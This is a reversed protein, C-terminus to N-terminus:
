RRGSASARIAAVFTEEFTDYGFAEAISATDDGLEQFGILADNFWANDALRKLDDGLMFHTRRACDKAAAKVKAMVKKTAPEFAGPKTAKGQNPLEYSTSELRKFLIGSWAKPVSDALENSILMLTPFGSPTCVECGKANSLYPVLKKARVATTFQKGGYWEVDSKGWSICNSGTNVTTFAFYTVPGRAHLVTVSRVQMFLKAHPELWARIRESVLPVGAGHLNDPLPKDSLARCQPSAPWKQAPVWKMGEIPGVSTFAADAKSSWVRHTPPAMRRLTGGRV